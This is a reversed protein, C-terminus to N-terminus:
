TTQDQKESNELSENILSIEVYLKEIEIELLSLNEKLLLFLLNLKTIRIKHELRHKLIDSM